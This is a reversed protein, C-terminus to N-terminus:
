GASAAVASRRRLRCWGLLGLGAALLAASGPEPVAVAPALSFSLSGFGDYVIGSEDAGIIEFRAGGLDCGADCHLLDLNVWDSGAAGPAVLLRITSGYSFSMSTASVSDWHLVGAADREM